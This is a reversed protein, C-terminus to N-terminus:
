GNPDLTLKTASAAFPFVLLSFIFCLNLLTISNKVYYKECFFNL